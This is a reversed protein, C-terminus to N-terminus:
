CHYVICICIYAGFSGRFSKTVKHFTIVVSRDNQLAIKTTIHGQINFITKCVLHQVFNPM